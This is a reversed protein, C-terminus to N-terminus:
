KKLASIMGLENIYLTAGVNDDVFVEAGFARTQDTFKEEGYKRCKVNLGHTWRPERAQTTPAKVGAPAPVVTISGTESIFILNTTTLDHYVEVGFKRTDKTFSKEDHRRCSLDLGHLWDPAKGKGKVETTEPIVAIYGNETVYILNGTNADRYVEIGYKAADKWDNMGGKRVQLDISHIWVPDKTTMGPHLKGDTSALLGDQTIYLWNDPNPDRFVEMSHAKAGKWENVGAKRAPLDLGTLHVPRKSKEIPTALGKFNPAVSISGKESIYLGMGTNDDFFAEVGFRQTKDTIDAEKYKRAALDFAHSWKLDKLKADKGKEEQGTVSTALISAL